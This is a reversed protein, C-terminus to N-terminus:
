HSLVLVVDIPAANIAVDAVLVVVVAVGGGAITIVNDVVVLNVIAYFIM